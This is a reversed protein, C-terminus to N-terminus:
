WTSSTTTFTVGFGGFNHSSDNKFSYCDIIELAIEIIKIEKKLNYIRSNAIKIKDNIMNNVINDTISKKNKKFKFRTKLKRLTEIQETTSKIDQKLVPRAKQIHKKSLFIIDIQFINESKSIIDDILMLVRQIAINILPNQGDGNMDGTEDYIKRIEPSKLIGYAKSLEQFGKTNGGIDPHLGKAKDRFAKSIEKQSAKKDVGITEYPNM